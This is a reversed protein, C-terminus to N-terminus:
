DSSGGSSRPEGGVAETIHQSGSNGAPPWAPRLLRNRARLEVAEARM